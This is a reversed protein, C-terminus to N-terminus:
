NIINNVTSSEIYTELASYRDIEDIEGGISQRLGWIRSNFIDRENRLASSAQLLISFDSLESAFEAEKANRINIANTLNTEQTPCSPLAEYLSTLFTVTVSQNETAPSGNSPNIPRQNFGVKYYIKGAGVSPEVVDPVDEIGQIANEPKWSQTNPLNGSNDYVISRGIGINNSNM